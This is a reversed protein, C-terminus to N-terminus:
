QQRNRDGVHVRVRVFSFFRVVLCLRLRLFVPVRRLVYRLVSLEFHRVGGMVCPQMAPEFCGEQEIAV